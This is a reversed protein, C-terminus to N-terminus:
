TKMYTVPQEQRIKIFSLNEICVKSSVRFYLENFERWQSGLQEMRVPLCVSLCVRALQSDGKANKQRVRRFVYYEAM